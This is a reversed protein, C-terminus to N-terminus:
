KKWVHIEGSKIKTVKGLSSRYSSAVKLYMESWSQYVDEEEIGVLEYEHSISIKELLADVYKSEGEIKASLLGDKVFKTEGKKRKFEVLGAGGCIGIEIDISMPLGYTEYPYNEALRPYEEFVQILLEHTFSGEECDHIFGAMEFDWNNVKAHNLMREGVLAAAISATSQTPYNGSFRIAEAVASPKSADYSIYIPDGFVTTVYGLEFLMEKQEEIYAKVRPFMQFFDDFLKQAYKVDGRFYEEAIAQVSKGYLLGFSLRKAVNREAGTIESEPKQFTKAAIFRHIDKGERFAQIIGDEKALAAFVRYENQSFDAHLFIHNPKSPVFCTKVDSAAPIGHYASTWRATGASCVGYEPQYLTFVKYADTGLRSKMFSLGVEDPILEGNKDKFNYKYTELM